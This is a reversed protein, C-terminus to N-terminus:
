CQMLYMAGIHTAIHAYCAITDRWADAFSIINLYITLTDNSFKEPMCVTRETVEIQLFFFRESRTSNSRFLEEWVMDM